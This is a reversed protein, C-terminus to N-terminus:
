KSEQKVCLEEYLSFLRECNKCLVETLINFTRKKIEDTPVLEKLLEHIKENEAKLYVIEQELYLINARNLLTSVCDEHRYEDLVPQQDKYAKEYGAEYHEFCYQVFPDDFDADLSAADGNSKAYTREDFTNDGDHWNANHYQKFSELILDEKM